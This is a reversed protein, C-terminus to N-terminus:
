LALAVVLVLGFTFLLYLAFAVLVTTNDSM